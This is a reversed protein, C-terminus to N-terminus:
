SWFSAAAMWAEGGGYMRALGDSSRRHQCKRKTRRKRGGEKRGEKRERRRESAKQAPENQYSSTPQGPLSPRHLRRTGHNTRAVSTYLVPLQRGVLCM